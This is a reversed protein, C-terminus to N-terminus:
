LWAGQCLLKNPVLLVQQAAIYAGGAMRRHWHLWSARGQTVGEALRVTRISGAGLVEACPGTEPSDAPWLQRQELSPCSAATGQTVGEALRVTRISGAGLVEACLLQSYSFCSTLM